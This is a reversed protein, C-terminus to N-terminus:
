LHYMGHLKVILAEYNVVNYEVEISSRESLKPEGSLIRRVKRTNLISTCKDENLLVLM